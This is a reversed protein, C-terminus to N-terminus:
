RRRDVMEAAQQCAALYRQAIEGWSAMPTRAANDGLLALRERSPLDHLFEQWGDLENSILFGNEGQRILDMLSGSPMSVVPRGCSLYERVKLTSYAVEEGPFWTPEYPALCLDAAAIHLPVERHPIRGHFLIRDPWPSSLQEFFRRLAGDGVIHLRIRDHDLQGLARIAPELDHARDLVGVYLLVTSGNEMGLEQRAQDRDIPRFLSRDVGLGIVQIRSADVQWIQSITRRLQETEAIVRPARRLCYGAIQRAIGLRAKALADQRIGQTILPVYNEVPIAAIGRRSCLWSVLGSLLWSKELVVDYHQLHDVVFRQLSRVYRIFEFYGIGRLAADDVDDEPSGDAPEIEVVRLSSTPALEAKHRFAVTVEARKGLERAINLVNRSPGASALLNHGPVVYCISLRRGSSTPLLWGGVTPSDDDADGGAEVDGFRIVGETHARRGTMM